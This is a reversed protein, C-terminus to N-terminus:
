LIGASFLFLFIYALAVLILGATHEQNGNGHRLAFINALQTASAIFLAPLYDTFLTFNFLCGATAVFGILTIVLNFRRLSANSTLLRISNSIGTLITWLATIAAPIATAAVIPSIDSPLQFPNAPTFDYPSVLGLGLLAWYPAVLGLIYAVTEKIRVAKLIVACPFFLIAFPIFSLSFAAGLSLLSALAFLPHTNNGNERCGFLLWLCLILTAGLLMGANLREVDAPVSATLLLFTAALYLSRSAVFNYRNNLAAFGCTSTALLLLNVLRSLWLPLTWQEPAPLCLGQLIPEPMPPSCLLTAVVMGVAAMGAVVTGATGNSLKTM